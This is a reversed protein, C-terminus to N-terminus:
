FRMQFAVRIIRCQLIATVQGLSNGISNNRTFVASGNLANFADLQVSYSKRGQRFDKKINLDLQNFRPYFLTGPANLQVTESNTQGGPFLASPVTYTVVRPTGAYSQLVASTEIGWPLPYSGSAKFENTLPIKFKRQDCYPGSLAAISNGTYLDAVVPVNPDYHKSILAPLKRQPPM